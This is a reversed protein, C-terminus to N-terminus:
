KYFVFITDSASWSKFILYLNLSFLLLSTCVQVFCDHFHLRILSAGIRPDTQSANTIVASVIDTVNPCTENYFTPSLQANSVSLGGVVMFILACWLWLGGMRLCAVSM